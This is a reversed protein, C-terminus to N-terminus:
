KFPFTPTSAVDKVTAPSSQIELSSSQSCAALGENEEESPVQEEEAAVREEM